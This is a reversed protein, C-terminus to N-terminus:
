LKGRIDTAATWIGTALDKHLHAQWWELIVDVVEDQRNTFNHDADEVLHLSHTGPRRRSLAKSYIIADYPPVVADSLGHITLVDTPEPFQDWVFSTDFEAFMRFDEPYLKLELVKRAVTPRWITYGQEDFDHPIWHEGYIKKMRCRGSVNIFASVRQGEETSCIWKMGVVSGRSHGVVLDVDYGLKSKLYDTVVRLDDVDDNLGGQRWTGTSEHCGRFDFRFSDMPLRLALRKQFLYDKHGGSGHLILAIKRGQTPEDPSLQDLIGVLTSAPDYLHPIILKSSARSNM